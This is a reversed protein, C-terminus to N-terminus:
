GKDDGEEDGKGREQSEGRDNIAGDCFTLRAAFEVGVVVFFFSAAQIVLVLFSDFLSLWLIRGGLRWRGPGARPTPFDALNASSKYHDTAPADRGFQAVAAPLPRRRCGFRGFLWHWDFQFAPRSNAGTVQNPASLLFPFLLRHVDFVVRGLRGLARM